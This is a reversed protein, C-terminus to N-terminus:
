YVILTKLSMIEYFLITKTWCGGLSMLMIFNVTKMITKLTKKLHKQARSNLKSKNIKDPLKITENFNFYKYKNNNQPLFLLSMLM